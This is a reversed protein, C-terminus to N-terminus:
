SAVVDDGEVAVEVGPLPSPAPGGVVSGDEVSFQSGHCPCQITGDEVKTVVCGQHTCVASFGLFEGETPQTVVIKQDELIVGGGVPVDAAAVLPGGTEETPTESAGDGAGNDAGDGSTTGPEDPDESGCAALLPTAVGLLAAHGLVHRRDLGRIETDRDTM